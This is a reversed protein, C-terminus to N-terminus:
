VSEQLERFKSDCNDALEQLHPKLELLKEIRTDASVGTQQLFFLTSVGELIQPTWTNLKKATAVWPEPASHGVDQLLQHLNPKAKIRFCKGGNPNNVEEEELLDESVLVDVESKLQPSYMGYYSYEFKESFPVRLEQLIHVTKQLKKRGEISSLADVLQLLPLIPHM